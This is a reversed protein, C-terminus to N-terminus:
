EPRRFKFPKLDCGLYLRRRSLRRVASLVSYSGACTDVVLDSPLTVAEILRSQIGIPKAHAHGPVPAESMVDPIGHDIWTGKARCPEKQFILLFESKRRLRYGMGIRPKQWVMMDVLRLSQPIQWKLHHGSAVIFKDTWIMMHGSPRICREIMNIFLSITQDSMATLAARAKQRKGENGYNMKDLVSRYQPDFIVLAASSPKIGALLNVGDGTNPQNPKFKM